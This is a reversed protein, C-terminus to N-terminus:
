FFYKVILLQKKIYDPFMNLIMGEKWAVRLLLEVFLLALVQTKQVFRRSKVKSNNNTKWLFIEMLTNCRECCM